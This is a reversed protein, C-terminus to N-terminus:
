FFKRGAYTQSFINIEIEDGFGRAEAIQKRLMLSNIFRKIQRPNGDTGEALLPAIQQSFTLAQLAIKKEENNKIARDIADQKLTNGLWPKQIADKSLAKLEKFGESEAGLERMALLLAVYTLTETAGLAPIRFPVQILKELYNRAYSVAGLTNPLDPFHQKVAYEIMAEDAAVIFATQPTFLFLRIAELTEITTSPLCRDLDDILVVLQKIDAEALYDEFEERFAHIEKPVTKQEKDKDSKKIFAKLPKILAPIKDASPDDVMSLAADYAAKALKPTPMGAVLSFGTHGLTKVGKMWDIRCLLSKAKKKLKKKIEATVPAADQIETIVKELLVLKADEFGQFLWGNFRICLVDADDKYAGEIMALISSKGAGWDGHIGITLPEGRAQDTVNKITSAISEYYLLDIATENDHLVM